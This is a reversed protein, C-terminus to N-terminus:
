QYLKFNKAYIAQKIEKDVLIGYHKINHQYNKHPFLIEHGVETDTYYLDFWESVQISKLIAQDFREFKYKIKKQYLNIVDEKTNIQKTNDIIDIIDKRIVKLRTLWGTIFIEQVTTPREQYEGNQLLSISPIPVGLDLQEELKRITNISVLSYQKVIKTLNSNIEHSDINTNDKSFFHSNFYYNFYQLIKTIKTQQNPFPTPCFEAMIQECRTIEPEIESYIPKFRRDIMRDMLFLRFTIPPFLLTNEKDQNIFAMFQSFYISPGILLTAFLDCWVETLWNKLITEPSTCELDKFITLIESKVIETNDFTNIFDTVIDVNGTDSFIKNDLLLHSFEHLLSPWRYPNTSDIRPITIHSITNIEETFCNIKCNTNGILPNLKKIKFDSLPDLNVSEGLSENVYFSIDNQIKEEQNLIVIQKQLIRKLRTLEVAEIPRPLHAM